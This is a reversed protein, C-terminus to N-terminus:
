KKGDRLIKLENRLNETTNILNKNQKILKDNQYKLEYSDPNDLKHQELEEIRANLSSV